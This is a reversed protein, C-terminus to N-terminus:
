MEMLAPAITVMILVTLLIMLPLTMKTEALRGKEEAQQKRAFWLLENERRLKDSLDDGKNVNDIMINTIRMLEKVGSYRAFDYIEKYFSANMENVMYGIEAIRRYFYSEKIKREDCGEVVKLFASNLIVGANILLVLKNIFEPLEKIISEKAMKEEKSIAHFRNHYIIWLVALEGLLYVIFDTNDAKKWVVAEGNELQQPLMVEAEGTDDNLGSILRKLQAESTDREPVELLTDEASEEKEDGAPEITIYYEKETRGDESIVTVNTSFAYSDEGAEPRTVSIIEGRSNVTVNNYESRASSLDSIMLCLLLFISVGAAVITKRHEKKAWEAYGASGFLHTYRTKLNDEYERFKEM